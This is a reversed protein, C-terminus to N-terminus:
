IDSTGDASQTSDALKEWHRAQTAKKRERYEADQAYRERERANIRERNKERWARM